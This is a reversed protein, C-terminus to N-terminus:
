LENQNVGNYDVGLRICSSQFNTLCIFLKTFDAFDLNSDNRATTLIDDADQCLSFLMEKYEESSLM